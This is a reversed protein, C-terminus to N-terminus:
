LRLQNICEVHDLRNFAKEYDIGLLVTPNGDDLPALLNDMLDVLLHNVSCKKLGGYQTEDVPCERRLDALLVSELVKSLFPTCSINRCESLSEPKPVKPIVVTTEVKWKAPWSNYAFVSNFILRAAPAIARHHAKVLVPPLDGPVVSNPKKADKLLAEVEPLTLPPRSPHETRSPQIPTFLDSIKTFFESTAEGAQLETHGPFLEMLSWGPKVTKSSLQKVASFYSKPGEAEVGDVFKCKSAELLRDMRDQLALCLHSKGERKYVRRKRRSLRRIGETVWAPENSRRRVTRLPFLREVIALTYAEFQEVLQDPTSGTMVDEWRTAMLEAGFQKVASATHKRITKKVWTFDKARKEAGSIILCKHDSELGNDTCLPPWTSEATSTANSLVIDLCANGRTPEFNIQVIDQYNDTAGTLMKRNLDGGVFIIPDGKAKLKLIDRCLLDNLERLDAAKLRPELYVCYVVVPRELKRVRGVAAVLEFKNGVIKRERFTCSASNYIISVGGGVSRSSAGRKPRNKYIIKLGTGHELDVVDRDLTRSDKLWSETILAFDLQHEDFMTHLSHIKPSLSRANTVLLKYM